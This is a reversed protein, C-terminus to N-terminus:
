EDEYEIKWGDEACRLGHSTLTTIWDAEYEQQSTRLKIIGSPQLVNLSYISDCCDAFQWPAGFSKLDLLELGNIGFFASSKISKEVPYLKIRRIKTNYFAYQGISQVSAPIDLFDSNLLTCGYFAREGIATLHEPLNLEGRLYCCQYFADKGITNLSRPFALNGILGTCNAFASEGINELGNNLSLLWRLSETQVFVDDFANNNITQIEDPLKISEYYNIFPLDRKKIGNLIRKNTTSFCDDEMVNEADQAYVNWLYSDPYSEQQATAALGFTTDLVGAWAIEDADTSDPNIIITGTASINSLPKENPAEANTSELLSSQDYDTVDILSFKKCNDFAFKNIVKITKCLKIKSLNTCGSFAYEDITSFQSECNTFDVSTINTCDQFASKGLTALSKPPAITGYFGTCGNFANNGITTVEDRFKVRMPSTIANTGSFADAAIETIQATKSHPLVFVDYKSWDVGDNPGLIKTGTEDIKFCGEVTEKLSSIKFGDLSQRKLIEDWEIDDFYDLRATVRRQSPDVNTGLDYFISNNFYLWRPIELQDGFELHGIGKCGSFAYAGVNVLSQPFVLMGSLSNCNRFAFDGVTTITSPLSLAGTIRQCDCFAENEIVELNPAHTGLDIDNTIGYCRVFARCGIRKLQTCGDFIITNIDCAYGDFIGNFADNAIYVVDKPIQLKHYGFLDEIKVYPKFGYLTKQDQEDERVDLLREPIIDDDNKNINIVNSYSVCATFVPLTSVMPILTSLIHIRNKRSIKM